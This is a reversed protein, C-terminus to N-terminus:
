IVVLLNATSMCCYLNDISLKRCMKNFLFSVLSLQFYQHLCLLPVVELAALKRSLPEDRERERPRERERERKTEREREQDRERERERVCVCM